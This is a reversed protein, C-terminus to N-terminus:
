FCFCVLFNLYSLGLGALGFVLSLSLFHDVFADFWLVKYNYPSIPTDAVDLGLLM